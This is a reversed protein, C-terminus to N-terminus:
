AVEEGGRQHRGRWGEEAGVVTVHQRGYHLFSFSFLPEQMLFLRVKYYMSIANVNSVRVFLDVFYGHHVRDSVEELMTMLQNALGQRRCTWVVKSKEAGM